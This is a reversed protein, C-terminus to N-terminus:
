FRNEVKSATFRLRVYDAVWGEKETYLVPKLLDEAEQYFKTKQTENLSQTITNAFIKLWAKVGSKLPTPRPILEIYTVEFGGAELAQQYATASPFFWPNNFDGFDDYKEFLRQMVELLSAINGQGGLEGVFRGNTKLSQHVRNIVSQYDTMWHLAANSFVADFQDQFNMTEGSGVEAEIGRKRAAAIMSESKDIGYAKAGTEAINLTLNGDGCGLDLITEGQKPNLLKLVPNGLEPVFSAHNIYQDANWTQNTMEIIKINM